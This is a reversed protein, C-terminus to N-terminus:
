PAPKADQSDQNSKILKTLAGRELRLRPEAPQREIAHSFDAVAEPFAGLATRIRARNYLASVMDPDLRLAADYDKLAADLDNQSAFYVGRNFYIGAFDPAIEIAKDYDALAKSKEGMFDYVNARGLYLLALQTPQYVKADIASTCASEIRVPATGNPEGETCLTALAAIEGSV